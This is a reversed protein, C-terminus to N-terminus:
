EDIDEKSVIKDIDMSLVLREGGNLHLINDFYGDDEEKIDEQRVSLIDSVSDVVFGIRNGDINCIIIKSDENIVTPINLKEFLSVITVIQGRINIIGDISNDTFAVETSSVIDIIEDVCEVNFAYEKQALRFVIVEMAYEVSAEQKLTEKSDIFAENQEFIESIVNNDFFSILSEEDHIVGAIKTDNFSESMYEINKKYYNKIDVISDICLAIKKGDYSIVLIRNDDNTEAKFGYHVRLDIVILLEERLTILGLVESSTGAVDTYDVDALIIEQLYDIELAYKEKSMSFILFRSSDEEKVSNDKVKGANVERAEIQVKNMKLFLEELSLVQILLDNYKYIAIVPDNENELYEINESEVEVTNYVDSVLLTQSSLENNLSIIRSKSDDLDVEPMDLLLNMDVMSLVNGGVSCLGRVGAPRLPLPMLSPVRSIQNIDETSVGYNEHANKIILIEEIQM